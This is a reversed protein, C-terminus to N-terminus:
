LGLQNWDGDQFAEGLALADKFMQDQTKPDRYLTPNKKRMEQYYANTRKTTSPAFPDRRISSQPPAQFSDTQKQGDLGLTKFLVSPHKRALENVFDPELGLQDIQQKLVPQYNPGYQETLKSEVLKYNAAEKRQQEVHSLKAEVLSEIEKPDYVPPKVDNPALTNESNSHQQQSAFRDILEQLKPGANYEERMRTYDQRLEDQRAKMHDIYLDGEVKGRAIAKYMDAESQYKTKDFKGGPRTLEELYDKQPDIQVPDNQNTDLLNM